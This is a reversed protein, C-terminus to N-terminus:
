DQALFLLREKERREVLHPHVEGGAHNHNRFANAAGQIDGANFKKLVDSSTSFCNTCMNHALSVMASFQNETAARTLAKRVDGETIKVDNRLLTEAKKQTIKRVEDPAMQHAYGIYDHNGRRYAELRLDEGDKIIQLGRDNIRLKANKAVNSSSAKKDSAQAHATGLAELRDLWPLIKEPMRERVIDPTGFKYILGAAGAVLFLLVLFLRGM